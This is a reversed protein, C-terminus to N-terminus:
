LRLEEWEGGVGERYIRRFPIGADRLLEWVRHIQATRLRLSYGCGREEMSRPTRQLTCGFGKERLLREGRQAFTVSRVTILYQNM